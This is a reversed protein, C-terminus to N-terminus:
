KKYAFRLLLERDSDSIKSFDSIEMKMHVAKRYGKETNVKINLAQCIQKQKYNRLIFDFIKKEQYTLTLYKKQWEKQVSCTEIPLNFPANINWKGKVKKPLQYSIEALSNGPVKTFDLLYDIFDQVNEFQHDKDILKLAHETFVLCTEYERKSSKRHKFTISRIM